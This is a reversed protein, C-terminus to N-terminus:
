IRIDIGGNNALNSGYSGTYKDHMREQNQDDNQEEHEQTNTNQTNKNKNQDAIQQQAQDKLSFNFSQSDTKLGGDQLARELGRIDRQLLEL